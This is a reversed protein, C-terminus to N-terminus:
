GSGKNCLKKSRNPGNSSNSFDFFILIHFLSTFYQQTNGCTNRHHRRQTGLFWHGLLLREGLLLLIGHLANDGILQGLEHADAVKLHPRQGKLVVGHFHIHALVEAVHREGLVPHSSHTVLDTLRQTGFIAVVGHEDGYHAIIDVIVKSVILRGILAAMFGEDTLQIGVAMVLMSQIAIDDCHPGAVAPIKLGFEVAPFPLAGAQHLGNLVHVGM